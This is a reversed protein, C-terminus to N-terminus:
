PNREREIQNRIARRRQDKPAAATEPRKTLLRGTSSLSCRM